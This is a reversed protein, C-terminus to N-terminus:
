PNCDVKGSGAVSVDCHAKGHVTVNGSGAVSGTVHGDSKVSGTGSGAVDIVAEGANLHAMDVEGSGAITLALSDAAGQGTFSGSGLVEVALHKATIGAVAVHGSGGITIGASESKLRDATITGSGALVLHDASPTTVTITAIGPIQDSDPKRGIGLKGNKFVFRLAATAQPDGKVTITFASGQVVQVTDPGLLTIEHAARGSVALQALPVGSQGDISMTTSGCGTLGVTCVLARIALSANRM